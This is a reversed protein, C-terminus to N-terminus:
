HLIHLFQCQRALPSQTFATCLTDDFDCWHHKVFPFLRIQRISISTVKFLLNIKSINPFLDITLTYLRPSREILSEFQFDSGEQCIILHLRTLHDFRPIIQCIPDVLPIPIILDPINLFCVPYQYLGEKVTSRCEFKHVRDFSWYNREDLCTWKSQRMGKATDTFM